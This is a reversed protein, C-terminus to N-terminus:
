DHAPSISRQVDATSTFRHSSPHIHSIQYNIWFGLYLLLCHGDTRRSSNAACGTYQVFAQVFIERQHFYM